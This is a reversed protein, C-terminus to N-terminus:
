RLTRRARHGECQNAARREELPLPPISNLDHLIRQEEQCRGQILRRKSGERGGWGEGGGEKEKEEEHCPRMIYGLSAKFKPAEQWNCAHTMM